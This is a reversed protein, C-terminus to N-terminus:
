GRLKEEEQVRLEENKKRKRVIRQKGPMTRSLIEEAKKIGAEEMVFETDNWRRIWRSKVLTDINNSLNGIRSATTRNAERYKLVLSERTFLRKQRFNSAYYAYVILWEIEPGPLHKNTVDKLHPYKAKNEFSDPDDTSPVDTNKSKPEHTKMNEIPQQNESDHFIAGGLQKKIDQFQQKVEEADGEIEISWDGKAVKVKLTRNNM